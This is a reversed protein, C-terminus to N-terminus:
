TFKGVEPRNPWDYNVKRKFDNRTSLIQYLM